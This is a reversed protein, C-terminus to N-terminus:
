PAAVWVYPGDSQFTLSAQTYSGDEGNVQLNTLVFAGAYWGDDINDAAPESIAFRYNKVQGVAARLLAIQARNYVGSGSIDAQRGTTDLSRFPVAEPDSCDTNFNDSTNIQDTFSRTNLGCLKTFAETPTAGDGMYVAVYGGKVKSPYLAM